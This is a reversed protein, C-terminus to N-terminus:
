HGKAIAAAAVVAAQLVAAEVRAEAVAVVTLDVGVRPAVEVAEAMPAAPEEAEAAARAVGATLAAM